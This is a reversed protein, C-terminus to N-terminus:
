RRPTFLAIIYAVFIATGILSFLKHYLQAATRMGFMAWWSRVNSLMLLLAWVLTPWYM